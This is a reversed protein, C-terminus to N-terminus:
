VWPFYLYPAETIKTDTRLVVTSQQIYYLNPFTLVADSLKQLQQKIIVLLEFSVSFRLSNSM